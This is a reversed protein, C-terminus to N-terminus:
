CVVSHLVVASEGDGLGELFGYDNEISEQTQAVTQEATKVTPPKPRKPSRTPSAAGKRKAVSPATGPREDLNTDIRQSL